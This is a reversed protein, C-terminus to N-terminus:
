IFSILITGFNPFFCVFYCCLQHYQHDRLKSKEKRQNSYFTEKKPPLEQGMLPKQANCWITGIKQSSHLPRCHLFGEMPWHICWTYKNNEFSEIIQVVLKVVPHDTSHGNQFGFNKSYLVNNEILYKYLRNYMIRELMKSFCPLLSIPRYNRVESSDGDKYIPTVRAIKLDDPFVGKEIAFIKFTWLFQRLM